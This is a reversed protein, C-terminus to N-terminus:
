RVSFTCNGLLGVGFACMVKRDIYIPCFYWKEGKHRLFAEIYTHKLYFHVASTEGQSTGKWRFCGSNGKPLSIFPSAFQIPPGYFSEFSFDGLKWEFKAKENLVGMECIRKQKVCYLCSSVPDNQLKSHEQCLGSFFPMLHPSLRWRSSQINIPAGNPM